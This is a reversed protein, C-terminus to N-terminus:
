ALFANYLKTAIGSVWTWNMFIAVLITIAFASAMKIWDRTVLFYIGICGLVAPILGNVNSSVSNGIKEGPTAAFVVPALFTFITLTLLVVRLTMQHKQNKM